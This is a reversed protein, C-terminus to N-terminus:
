AREKEPESKMKAEAPTAATQNPPTKMPTTQDAPDGRADSINRPEHRDCGPTLSVGFVLLLPLIRPM